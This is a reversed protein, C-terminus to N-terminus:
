LKRTAAIVRVDGTHVPVATQPRARTMAQTQTGSGYRRGVIRWDAPEAGVEAVFEFTACARGVCRVIAGGDGVLAHREGDITLVRVKAAPPAYIYIEDAGNAQLRLALRRGNAFKESRMAVGVPKLDHPPLLVGMREPDRAIRVPEFKAAALMAAPPAGQTQLFAASQGTDVDVVHEINVGQPADFSHAPAHVAQAVRL